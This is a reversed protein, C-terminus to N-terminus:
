KFCSLINRLQTKPLFGKKKFLIKKGEAILLTPFDNVGFESAIDPNSSTDLFIMGLQNEKSVEEAVKKYFECSECSDKSFFYFDTM